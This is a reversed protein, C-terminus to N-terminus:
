DLVRCAWGVATARRAHMTRMSPVRAALARIPEALASLLAVVAPRRLYGRLARELDDAGAYRDAPDRAMARLCISELTRPVRPNVQRPPIVRGARALEVLASATAARYPPRGTLLEYLVAGLGFIDTRTTIRDDRGDAQEPAMYAPTGGSAGERTESWAHRLLAQGFDILRPQDSEDILINKSKIDQHIIGRRHLFAVTQALEAVIAASRRATPHRQAAYQGLNLGPVYEMVLYPRGELIDLDVVKVLRPHDLEALLRGQAALGNGRALPRRSLKLVFPKGLEAHLVRYLLAEGGEDLRALVVYRGIARGPALDGPGDGDHPEDGDRRDARDLVVDILEADRPFRSRYPAATPAAGGERALEIELLLLERLLEARRPDDMPALYDEIRPRRGAHWDAEFQDCSADVSRASDPLRYRPQPPRAEGM